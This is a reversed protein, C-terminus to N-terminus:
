LWGYRECGWFFSVRDTLEDGRVLIAAGSDM